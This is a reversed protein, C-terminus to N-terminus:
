QRARAGNRPSEPVHPGARPASIRLSAGALTGQASTVTVNAVGTAAILHAPVFATAETAGVYTTALPVGNWNVTVDPTFNTAFGNVTLTFAPGGVIASSPSLTTLNMLFAHSEGAPNYGQGAIQGLDNIANAEILVWGSDAPLLSNLDTMIGNAYVFAHAGVHKSPVLYGVVQGSNNIATAVGQSFGPLRGLDTMAGGSYLFPSWVGNYALVFAYGVVQGSDNIGTATSGSYSADPVGLNQIVGGSYLFAVGYGAGAAGVVQESSNIGFAENNPHGPLAPLVTVSNNAYLVAQSTLDSKMAYGAIQGSNNIATAQSYAYGDLTWLLSMAGGSYLFPHQISGDASGSWGVIQGQDNIGNATSQADGPLVGLDALIGESYLFAHATGDDWNATGAVQGKSNIGSAYSWTSGPLTGLDIVRQAMAPPAWFAAALCAAIAGIAPTLARRKPRLETAVSRPTPKRYRGQFGRAAMWPAARLCAFANSRRM